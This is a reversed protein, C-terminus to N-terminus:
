LTNNIVIAITGDRDLLVLKAVIAVPANISARGPTNNLLAVPVILM